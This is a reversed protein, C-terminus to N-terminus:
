REGLRSRGCGLREATRLSLTYGLARLPYEETSIDIRAMPSRAVAIVNESSLSERFGLGWDDNELCLTLSAFMARSSDISTRFCAEKVLFFVVECGPM